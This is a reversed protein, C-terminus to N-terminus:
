GVIVSTSLEMIELADPKTRILLEEHVGNSSDSTMVNDTRHQDTM